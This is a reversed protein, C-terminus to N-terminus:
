RVLDWISNQKRSSFSNVPSFWQWVLSKLFGSKAKLADIGATFMAFIMCESSEM